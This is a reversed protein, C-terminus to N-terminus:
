RAIGPGFDRVLVEQSSGRSEETWVESQKREPEGGEIKTTNGELTDLETVDFSRQIYINGDTM